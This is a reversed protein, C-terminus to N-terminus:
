YLAARPRSRFRVRGLLGARRLRMSPRGESQSGTGGYRLPHLEREVGKRIYLVGTGLPALLGKHGPAALLDVDLEQVDISVHGLSQAADLLL